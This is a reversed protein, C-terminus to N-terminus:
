DGSSKVQSTLVNVWKLIREAIRYITNYGWPYWNDLITDDPKYYGTKDRVQKKSGDPNYFYRAYPFFEDPLFKHWDHILGLWPIGLKCAEWFVFWKHRLIYKLYSIYARM